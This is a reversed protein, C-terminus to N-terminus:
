LRPLCVIEGLIIKKLAPGYGRVFSLDSAPVEFHGVEKVAFCVGDGVGLDFCIFSGGHGMDALEGEDGLHVCELLHFV